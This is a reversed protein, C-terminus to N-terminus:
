RVGYGHSKKQTQREQQPAQRNGLINDANILATQLEKHQPKVKHYKKYLLKKETELTAWEQKLTAISPLKGKFGHEDFYKKAAQCLTVDARHNEYFENRKRPNKIRNYEQYVARTKIYTGIQKQLESIEKQKTEIDRIEHSLRSFEGSVASCKEKLDDYSDIGNEQLYLLTKAAQKLNFVSAWVEYGEGYGQRIKAQIDIMLSPTNSTRPPEVSKVPKAKPAVDRIGRLRERIAAETYDPELSDFRINKKGGPLRITTHKGLKVNCGARKLKVLFEGFDNGVVLVSDILDHLQERQTPPKHDGLYEARNWGRANGPNEIISLGHEACILDSLRRLATSSYKFNKFKRTSDLTTSNYIIHCHPNNTNMHTSLEYQKEKHM